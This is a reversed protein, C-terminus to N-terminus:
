HLIVLLRPEKTSETPLRISSQSTTMETVFFYKKWEDIRVSWFPVASFRSKYAKTFIIVM